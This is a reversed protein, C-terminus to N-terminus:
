ISGCTASNSRVSIIAPITTISGAPLPETSRSAIMLGSPVPKIRPNKLKKSVPAIMTPARSASLRRRLLKEFKPLRTSQWAIPSFMTVVDAWNPWGYMPTTGPEPKPPVEPALAITAPAATTMAPMARALPVVSVGSRIRPRSDGRREVGRGVVRGGVADPRHGIELSGGLLDLAWMELECDANAGRLPSGPPLGSPVDTM